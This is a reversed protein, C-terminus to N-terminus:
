VHPKPFHLGCPPSMLFVGDGLVRHGTKPVNEKATTAAAPEPGRSDLEPGWLCSAVCNPPCATFPLAEPSAPTVKSPFVHALHPPQPFVQRQTHRARPTHSGQGPGQAPVPRVGVGPPGRPSTGLGARSVEPHSDSAQHGTRLARGAGARPVSFTGGAPSRLMTDTAPLRLTTGGHVGGEMGVARVQGGPWGAEGVKSDPVVGRALHSERPVPPGRAPGWLSPRCESDTQRGARVRQASPGPGRGRLFLWQGWGGPGAQLAPPSPLSGSGGGATPAAPRPAGPRGPPSCPRLGTCRFGRPVEAPMVPGLPRPLSEGQGKGTGAPSVWPGPM